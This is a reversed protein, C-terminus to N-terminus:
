AGLAGLLLRSALIAAGAMAVLSALVLAIQTSTSRRRWAELARRALRRAALELRDLLRAIGLSEQALVGAGAALFVIGPGPIVLLVLGVAILAAGIFIRAWRRGKPRNEVRHYHDAFRRGPRGRKLKGWARRLHEM